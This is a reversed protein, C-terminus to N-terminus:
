RDTATTARSCRLRNTAMTSYYGALSFRVAMGQVFAQAAENLYLEKM